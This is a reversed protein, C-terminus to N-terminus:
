KTRMTGQKDAQWVRGTEVDMATLWGSGYCCTDLCKLYGLDLIEGDKQATHGVVATKGSCHRGPPRLKLSAWLLVEPPQQDLPLHAEYNGHVFFHRQTEYYLRCNQLFRIHEPPIADPPRGGYSAITADGGFLRWDGLLELWGDCILLLMQDHNGLLPVLRTQGSLGLLRQIVGASDPGRDVYDGLAVITDEPRPQLAELLADLAASCGHVDGIAITRGGM